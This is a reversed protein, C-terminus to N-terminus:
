LQPEVSTGKGAIASGKSALRTGAPTCDCSIHRRGTILALECDLEASQPPVLYVLGPSSARFGKTPSATISSMRSPLVHYLDDSIARGLLNTLIVLMKLHSNTSESLLIVGHLPRIHYTSFFELESFM